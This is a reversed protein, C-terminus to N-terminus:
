SPWTVGPGFNGGEFFEQLFQNFEADTIAPGGGAAPELGNGGGGPTCVISQTAPDIALSCPADGGAAPTLGALNGVEGLGFGIGFLDALFDLPSAIQDFGDGPTPLDQDPAGLVALLLAIADFDILDEGPVFLPIVLDNQFAFPAFATAGAGAAAINTDDSTALATAPIPAGNIATVVGALFPSGWWNAEIDPTGAGLNSFGFGANGDDFAAGPMFNQQVFLNGTGIGAAASVEVGNGGNNAIFNQFVETRSSIDGAFAVGNGGNGLIFNNHVQTTNTSNISGAFNVGNAPGGTIINRSARAIADGAIDAFQIGGTIAGVTAFTALDVPQTGDYPAADQTATGNGDITVESTGGIAEVFLIGASTQGTIATNDDITVFSDDVGTDFEVGEEGGTIETNGSVALEAGDSVSNDFEIGSGTVGDIARNGAVTFSGGSIAGVNIGDEGGVIQDNGGFATDVGNVAVTAPGITVVTDILSDEFFISDFGDGSILTNGAIAITSTDAGFISIGDVGNVGGGDGGRIETNGVAAFLAGNIIVDAILGNGTDGRVLTNNVVTLSGGDVAGVNVGNEAGIINGNGAFATDVGNVAVTAEGITVDTDTLSDEFFIGDFGDGLINTNDAIVITSNAAGFLSIGDVGLGQITTNGAIVLTAGSIGDSSDVGISIGNDAGEITTNDLIAVEAGNSVAGEVEIGNFDGGTIATNNAITFTGGNVNEIDLGDDDGIILANGDAATAGGITVTANTLSANFLIGDITTGRIEANRSITISADTVTAPGGTSASAFNVGRDDGRILTNGDITISTSAGSVAGRFAIGDGLGDEDAFTGLGEIRQNGAVNIISGSSIAGAFELGDATGQLANGTIQVSAANSIAGLNVADAGGTVSVNNTLNLNGANIAATQVGSRATAAINTNGTINVTAGTRIAGFISIADRAGTIQQNDTVNVIAGNRVVEDFQVGDGTAGNGVIQTNGTISFTGGDVTDVDIGDEAGTLDNADAAAAGGITVGSDTVNGNFLIADRVNSVLTNGGIQITADTVTSQFAVAWEQSTANNNTITINEGAVVADFFNVARRGISTFTNGTIMTNGATLNSFVGQTVDDFTSNRVTADAATSIAFLTEGLEVGINRRTSTPTGVSFGDIIVGTVTADGGALATASFAAVQFGNDADGNNANADIADTDIITTTGQGQLTLDDVWVEVSGGFTGAAVFVTQAGGLAGAANVALQISEGVVVNLPNSDILGLTNDDPFHVLRAELAVSQAITMAGGVVGNFTVGSASLITPSDPLFEAGNALQIYTGFESLFSIAGFTDNLVDIGPGSLRIGITGGDFTALGNFDIDVGANGTDTLVELVTSSAGGVFAAAGVNLRGDTGAVGTNDVLLAGGTGNYTGGTIAVTTSSQLDDIQIAQDTAFVQNTGGITVTATGLVGGTFAIGDQGVRTGDSGIGNGTITVTSDSVNGVFIVGNIGAQIITNDLIAVEAGNSVAGEVEIGNFDGGTITTNNAITFTGGNVNEIDLGEDDGIILANGDAATPGGITVTANTLSANFLIGDITTGRIEDNRSITVSADTVTAPGGTSASAFNVGRDDGRILTNNDILISTLAGSVAGRFAIGDALGDEGAFTGLGEIRQNGAISVTSGDGIAGTFEVGDDAGDITSGSITVGTESLSSSFRVGDNGGAIASNEILITDSLDLAATFNIGHSAINTTTANSITTAGDIAAAVVGSLLDNFTSNRVTTDAATSTAAEGLEVGINAGSSTLTDFSFGDIIVGTVTADGGALATASIAAVQFGNDADGNNANADIADTDIITTAGQGQLTLDDVWVEVSGGFTGAAVTVTRAGGLAGAANVALQISEGQTVFLDNTNILGLTSDDPFHTLRNELAVAQAGTLGSGLVGNFTVGTASLITPSDPLFEAGNALQIYTGFESLFSIAGFTDNLVDIGPGSLRIGITGGDFTALGNFDIDVGANGTDTLVELVTSAAGGVFAAAGVNLRGDTGAVGTNDVLLAGGTGNYTGGTIAVTTSSQLDDIQIARDTAFVQNTGGITVTATGLVGGAFAIGDQGVRSGDSGITNDNIIFNTAGQVAALVNIGSGNGSGDMTNGGVNVTTTDITVNTASGITVTANTIQNTAGVFTTDRFRVADGSVNSFANGAITVSATNIDDVFVIGAGGARINGNNAVVVQANNSITQEFEIASSGRILDNNAVVFRGGSIADIDLGQSPSVIWNGDAATDGGIIFTANTLTAIGPNGNVAIADFTGRIGNTANTGNGQIRVTADTVDRTFVIGQDAGEILTNDAIDITTANGAIAGRFVIGHQGGNISSGTIDIDAGNLAGDFGIGDRAVGTMTVNSINLDLAATVTNDIQIGDGTGTTGTIVGNTITVNDAGATLLIAPDGSTGAFTFGDVTTGAASVTFAPSAPAIIAGAGGILNLNAKNVLVSETYTGDSVNIIAGALAVTIADQIEAGGVSGLVNVTTAQGSIGGSATLNGDLNVTPANLALTGTIDVDVGNAVGIETASIATNGNATSPSVGDIEAITVAGTNTVNVGGGTVNFALNSVATELGDSTAAQLALGTATVDAGSGNGDIINGGTVLSLNTAQAPSIEDSITIDGSTADGFRLVEAAIRDIDADTLSLSGGSVTGLNITRSPTTPRLTVVGGIGNAEVVGEIDLLPDNGANGADPHIDITDTQFTLAGANGNGDTTDIHDDSPNGEAGIIITAGGAGGNAIFTADGGGTFVPDSILVDDAAEFYAYGGGTDLVQPGLIIDASAVPSGTETSGAFWEFNIGSAGNNQIVVQNTDITDAAHIEFTGTTGSNNNITLPFGGDIDVRGTGSTGTADTNLEFLGGTNLVNTITAFVVDTAGANCVSTDSLVICVDGPDILFHGTAADGDIVGTGKTSVEVFGNAGGNAGMTDIAGHFYVEDTGWVIVQGGDGTDIASADANAGADFYTHDSTPTYGDSVFGRDAVIGGDTYHFAAGPDQAGGRAAGGILAEGGGARGSVDINAGANLAVADGLVHVTGGAEGADNGSADLTGAVSVGGAGQGGVLAIQGDRGEITQAQIVGDMNVVNDVIGSVAEATLIVTGGDAYIEGANSVLSDMGEPAATTPANVAFQILGDGYTDVTFATGSALVVAGARAAIVGNNAVGPAVLAALGSDAVSISGDNTVTANAFQDNFQDFALNNAMFNANIIDITTATIAAVDVHATAGFHIGAPNVITIQGNGTLSGLIASPQGSLVRNLASSLHSPQVFNVSEDVGVDFSSWEIIVRDSGQIIEVTNTGYVIEAQGEVVVGDQPGALAFSPAMAGVVAAATLATSGRLLGVAAAGSAGPRSTTGVPQRSPHRRAHLDALEDAQGFVPRRFHANGM